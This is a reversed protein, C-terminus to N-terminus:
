KLLKVIFESFYQQKKKELIGTEFEKKESLYKKEDLKFKPNLAKNIEIYGDRIEKDDLSLGDTVEKYLKSIMINQRVQEEFTRAQTHFVYKLLEDYTRKDFRGQRMFFPYKEIQEIVERDSAKIRNRKAEKLLALRQWAQAELNLSKSMEELNDGYQMIALNKVADLSDKYEILSVKQGSLKGIYGKKGKNGLVDDFGFFVFFLIIIAALGILIIKTKKKNRLIKLMQEEQYKFRM